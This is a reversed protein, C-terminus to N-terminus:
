AGSGLVDIAVSAALQPAGVDWRLAIKSGGAVIEVRAVPGDLSLAASSAADAAGFRLWFGGIWPLPGEHELRLVGGERTERFHEHIPATGQVLAGGLPHVALAHAPADPHLHLRSEIRHGGAGLLVDVVLASDAGVALLRHHVPSGALWRWGDHSAHIWAFGATEGRAECRARGRRGTRWSSWAELLEAGDLQVTNHAATSRLWDRAPGAAYTSTGTDTVLRQAGHSLDFSLLDAHAHGLQHDPGHPGARVVARVPGRELRVLGSWREPAEPAPLPGVAARAQALLLAPTVEGRWADGLLPIDGDGLLV